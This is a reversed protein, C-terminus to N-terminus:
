LLAKLRRRNLQQFPDYHIYKKEIAWEIFQHFVESFNSFAKQTLEYEKIMHEFFRYM